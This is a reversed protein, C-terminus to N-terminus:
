REDVAAKWTRYGGSLNGVDKWGRQRLVREALYGRLGVACNVLIPAGPPVEGLRARLETHPINLAGPIAGASFEQRTRVDLFFAGRSRWTEVDDWPVAESYGAIANEAIYAVQNVPDKASSYPPAYAQEFAALDHVTGGMGM